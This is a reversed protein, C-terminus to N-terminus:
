LYSCRRSAEREKRIYHKQVHSRVQAVSRTGVVMSIMEAVGSGLRVSLRGTVADNQAEKPGFRLLAKLFREEEEQTWHKRSATQKTTAVQKGNPNPSAPASLSSSTPAESICSATESDNNDDQPSAGWTSSDHMDGCWASVQNMTSSNLILGVSSSSNHLSHVDADACNPASQGM